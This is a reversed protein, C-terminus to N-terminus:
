ENKEAAKLRALRRREERDQERKAAAQMMQFAIRERKKAWRYWIFSYGSIAGLAIFALAAFILTRDPADTWDGIVFVVLVSPVLLALILYAGFKGVFEAQLDVLLSWRGAYYDHSEEGDTLDSPIESPLM